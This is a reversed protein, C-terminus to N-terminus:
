LIIFLQALSAVLHQHAEGNKGPIGLCWRIVKFSKHFGFKGQLTLAQSHFGLLLLDSFM